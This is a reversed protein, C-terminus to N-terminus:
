QLMNKEDHLYNGYFLVNDKVEDSLTNEILHRLDLDSRSIQLSSSQSFLTLIIQKVLSLEVDLMQCLKENPDSHFYSLVARTINHLGIGFRYYPSCLSDGIILFEKQTANIPNTFYGWMSCKSREYDFIIDGTEKREIHLRGYQLLTEFQQPFARISRQSYNEFKKDKEYWNQWQSENLSVNLYNKLLATFCPYVPFQKADRKYHIPLPGEFQITNIEDNDVSESSVFCPIFIWDSPMKRVQKQPQNSIFVSAPIHAVMALLPYKTLKLIDQLQVTQLWNNLSKTKEQLRRVIMAGGDYSTDLLFEEISNFHRQHHTLCSSPTIISLTKCCSYKQYFIHRFVASLNNWLSLIFNSSWLHNVEQFIQSFNRPRKMKFLDFPISKTCGTSYVLVDYDHYTEQHVPSGDWCRIGSKSQSYSSIIQHIPDFQCGLYILGGMKMVIKMMIEEIDAIYVGLNKADNTARLFFCSPLGIFQFFKIETELLGCAVARNYIPRQEILTVSHGRLLCQIAMFLGAPGGGIILFRKGEPCRPKMTSTLRTLLKSGFFTKSHFCSLVHQSAICQISCRESNNMHDIVIDGCQSINQLEKSSIPLGSIKSMIEAIYDDYLKICDDPSREKYFISDGPWDKNAMLLDNYIIDNNSLSSQYNNNNLQCKNVNNIENPIIQSKYISQFMRLM